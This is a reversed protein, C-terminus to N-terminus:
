YKVNKGTELYILRECINTAHDAIREFYRGVLILGIVQDDNKKDIGIFRLLDRYIEDYLDDVLDDSSATAKALELDRKIYSTISDFVMKKVKKAMAPLDVLPTVLEYQGLSKVVESINCCHDGVRELDTVIKLISFVRRLDTAAPAQLAILTVCLMEIETEYANIRLDSDIIDQAIESDQNLLADISKEINSEVLMAMELLKDEIEQFRIDLTDRM